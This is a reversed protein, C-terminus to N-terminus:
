IEVTISEKYVKLQDRLRAAEEYNEDAVAKQLMEEMKYQLLMREQGEPEKGFHSTGKHMNKIMEEITEAFADYCYSCGLRGIKKLDAFTFGCEGCESYVPQDGGGDDPFLGVEFPKESGSNESESGPGMLFDPIDFDELSTIGKEEACQECLNTKKSKGDVVVEYSVTANNDCFQCKM